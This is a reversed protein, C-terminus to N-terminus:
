RGAEWPPPRGLAGWFAWRNGDTCASWGRQIYSTAVMSINSQQVWFSLMPTDLVPREREPEVLWDQSRWYRKTGAWMKPAKSVYKAVYRAVGRMSRVRRIDVKFAGTLGEWAASLWKQDIFPFRGLIHLHPQGSQHEEFIALFPLRELRYVRKIIRVLKQWADRILNANETPDAGGGGRVTLTLFTTPRGRRAMDALEAHRWPQCHECHWCRCRLPAATLYGERQTMITIASCFGVPVCGHGPPNRITPVDVSTHQERRARRDRGLFVNRPQVM